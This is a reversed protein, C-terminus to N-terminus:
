FAQKDGLIARRNILNQTVEGLPLRPFILNAPSCFVAGNNM